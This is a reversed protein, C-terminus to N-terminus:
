FLEGQKIEAFLGLQRHQGNLNEIGLEGMAESTNILREKIIECYKLEKEIITCKRNLLKAAVATTGSGGFPDLVMDGENTSDEILQRMLWLPKTTEHDTNKSQTIIGGTIVDLTKSTANFTRREREYIQRLGEYSEKLEEHGNKLGDYPIFGDWKDIGFVAILENYTEETPLDWQSSGYRFCHDAKQGITDIVESKTMPKPTVYFAHEAKRHGLEKNIQGGTKGMWVLMEYFYKRLEQFNNVDHKVTKLGTPSLDPTYFLIRETMPAYRRHNHAFKGNISNVKYWVMNNLYTWHKDLMVQTYAVWRAGQFIYINSNPMIVQKLEVVVGELWDVFVGVTDWQNDWETKVTKFYPPDCLVTNVSKRPLQDLIGLCDGHYLTILSDRYYPKVTM